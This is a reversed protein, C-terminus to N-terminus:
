PNRRDNGCDTAPDTGHKDCTVPLSSGPEYATRKPICYRAANPPDGGLDRILSACEMSTPCSCWGEPPTAADPGACQCSCFM